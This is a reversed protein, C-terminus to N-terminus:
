HQSMLISIGLLKISEKIHKLQFRLIYFISYYYPIVSDCITFIKLLSQSNITFLSLTTKDFKPDIPNNFNANSHMCDCHFVLNLLNYILLISHM